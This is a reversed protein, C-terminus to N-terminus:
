DHPIRWLRWEPDTHVVEYGLAELEGDTAMPQSYNSIRNQLYYDAIDTMTSIASPSLQLARRDTYLTLTRARYYVIIDDPRTYEDIIEFAREVRPNTPGSQVAGSDNFRRASDLRAPIARAHIVTLWVLPLVAIGLVTPGLWRPRNRVLTVLETAATVLLLTFFLVVLPTVQFYYRAVMRFHTGIIAMTAVTLTALPINLRPSKACAVVIGAVALGIVILGYVPRANLGLQLLVHKPYNPRDSSKVQDTLSFLRTLIFRRSNGNDPLLTSPLLFQAIAAGVVFTLYPIALRRWPILALPNVGRRWPSPRGRELARSRLGLVDVLQAVAIVAVLVISERRVNYAAVVLLALIVLDGTPADTLRHRLMVRDLWWIVVAIAVMHPFETLLQDTQALYTPATAFVATIAIAVVRGARRRVIGHFLVLWVCLCAVEVLKLRGFDLGFVRVFPSLLVAFGWPYMQPTVAVSHQWLLRNDTIVQAVNGEFLSRAQRLYLAFDDGTTHGRRHLHVAVYAAVLVLVTLAIASARKATLWGPRDLPRGPAVRGDGFDAGLPQPRALDTPATM